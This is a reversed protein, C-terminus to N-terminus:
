GHSSSPEADSLVEDEDCGFSWFAVLETICFAATLQPGERQALESGRQVSCSNPGQFNARVGKGRGDKTCLRVPPAHVASSRPQRVVPSFKPPTSQVNSLINGPWPVTDDRQGRGGVM